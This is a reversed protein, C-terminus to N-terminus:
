MTRRSRPSIRLTVRRQAISIRHNNDVIRRALAGLSQFKLRRNLCERDSGTAFSGNRSYGHVGPAGLADRANRDLAGCTSVM